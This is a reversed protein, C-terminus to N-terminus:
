IGILPLLEVKVFVVIIKYKFPSGFSIVAGVLRLLFVWFIWSFDYFFSFDQVAPCM